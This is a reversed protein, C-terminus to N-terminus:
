GKGRRTPKILQIFSSGKGPVSIVYSENKLLTGKMKVKIENIVKSFTQNACSFEIKEKFRGNLTFLVVFVIM